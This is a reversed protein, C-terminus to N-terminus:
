PNQRAHLNRLILCLIRSLGCWGVASILLQHACLHQTSELEDKTETEGAQMLVPSVEEM